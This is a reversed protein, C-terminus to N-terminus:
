KWKLSYTYVFTETYWFLVSSMYCPVLVYELFLHYFLDIFSHLCKGIKMQPKINSLEIVKIGRYLHQVAQTTTM